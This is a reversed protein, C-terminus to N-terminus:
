IRIWWLTAARVFSSTSPRTPRPVERQTKGDIRSCKVLGEPVKSKTRQKSHQQLWTRRSLSLPVQSSRPIPRIPLLQAIQITACFENQLNLYM